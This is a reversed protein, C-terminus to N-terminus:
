AGLVKVGFITIAFARIAQQKIRRLQRDSYKFDKALQEETLCEMFYGKLVKAYDKDKSEFREFAKNMRNLMKCTSKYEEEAKHLRVMKNVIDDDPAGSGGSGSPMDSYKLAEVTRLSVKLEIIEDKLGAVANNLRDYNKLYEVAERMYDM